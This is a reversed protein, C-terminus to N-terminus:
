IFMVCSDWAMSPRTTPLVSTRSLATSAKTPKMRAPELRTKTDTLLLKGDKSLFRIEGTQQNLEVCIFDSKINVVDGNEQIQVDKLQQPKLIVSYSKKQVPAALGADSKLIRVISPSYFEITVNQQAVQRTISKAAAGKQTGAVKVSKACLESPVGVAAIGLLAILSLNKLM